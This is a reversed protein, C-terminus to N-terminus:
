VGFLWHMLLMPSGLVGSDVLGVFHALGFSPGNCQLAQGLLLVGSEESSNIDAAVNAPMILSGIMALLGTLSFLILWM